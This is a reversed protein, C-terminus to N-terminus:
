DEKDRRLAGLFVKKAETLKRQVDEVSDSPQSFRVFKGDSNIVVIEGPRDLQLAHRVIGHTDQIVPFPHHAGPVERRARPLAEPPDMLLALVLGGLARTEQAIAALERCAGERSSCDDLTTAYLLIGRAAPLDPVGARSSLLDDLHLIRHKGSAVPNLVDFTLWQPAEGDAAVLSLWLSFVVIM